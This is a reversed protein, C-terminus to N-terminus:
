ANMDFSPNEKVASAVADFYEKGLLSKGESTFKADLESRKLIVGGSGKSGQGGRGGQGGQEDSIWKRETFINSIVENVELPAQTTANRVIEGGKKVVLKGDETVIEHDKKIITLYEEDNLTSLRNKPLYNLLKADTKTAEFQGQLNLKESELATLNGQLKSIVGNLEEIKKSPEIKADALTKSQVAEILKTADKGEFELGLKEKTEKVFMEISATKGENYGNKKSNADRTSLEEPTLVHLEPITINVEDETSLLANELETLDVKAIASLKTILDKKLM